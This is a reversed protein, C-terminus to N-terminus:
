IEVTGVLLIFRYQTQDASGSIAERTSGHVLGAQIRIERLERRADAIGTPVLLAALLAFADKKEVKETEQLVDEEVDVDLGSNGTEVHCHKREFLPKKNKLLGQRTQRDESSEHFTIARVKSHRREAVEADAEVDDGVSNSSNRKEHNNQQLISPLVNESPTDESPVNESPPNVSPLNESPMNDPPLTEFPMNDFSDRRVFHNPAQEDIRSLIEDFSGRLASAHADLSKRLAEVAERVAAAEVM